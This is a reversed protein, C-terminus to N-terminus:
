EMIFVLTDTDIQEFLEIVDANRMRICGHSVAQGILGEEPTGHIYIYRQQTDVDGGLNKGSEIGKLWLIRSTILDDGSSQAHQIIEALRGTNRRAKFITNAQCDAGIKEAVRHAGLPTQLSDICNGSGRASTSVPWSHLCNDHQYLSLLQKGIDVIVVQGLPSPGYRATLTQCPNNM